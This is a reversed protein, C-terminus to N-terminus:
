FRRILSRRWRNIIRRLRRAKLFSSFRKFRVSASYRKRSSEIAYEGSSPPGLGAALRRRLEKKRATWGAKDKTFSVGAVTSMKEAMARLHVAELKLEVHVGPVLLRLVPRVEHTYRKERSRRRHWVLLDAAQLPLIDRDNRFSPTSGLRTAIEPPQMKKIVEYWMVAEVGVLGQEDFIFDIPLTSPLAAYLRPLHQIVGNFCLFYPHRFEFPAVPRFISDFEDRSVSCEISCPRHRRIVDALLLVKVDRDHQDWGQFQGCLAEAESMKFYEIRAPGGHLVRDWEDSFHVWVISNQVYGALYLRHDDTDSASDDFYAQLILFLKTGRLRSPYGSGLADLAGVRSSVEIKPYTLYLM